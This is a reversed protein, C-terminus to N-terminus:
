KVLIEKAATLGLNLARQNLEETGKPVRRLLAERLSKESAVGTLGVLAGLAVINAVFGGGAKHALETIPLQYFKSKMAAPTKVNTSDLILIGEEKLSVLFQDVSAQNMVLLIDPHVVEPFVIEEDSIIVEARSAGGRAQVGYSQTQVVNKGDYIGAAEALIIGALIMGQGGSGGLRVETKM